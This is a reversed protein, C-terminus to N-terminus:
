RSLHISEGAGDEEQLARLVKEATLPLDAIRVGVADEIANAVAAAAPIIANEGIGRVNYPGVGEGPELLVTQFEPIDAVTPIKFDGFNSTEVHGNNVRLEEMLAYGLGQVAGGYVQGQHGIPNLITGVDHASTFKLLKVEGTEPDVSVEAVQAIFSTVPSRGTDDNVVDVRLPQGHRALVERWPLREGTDTRAVDAGEFALVEAPWELLEAALDLMRSKAEQAAQYASGTVIRTGHSGGLGSDFPTLDTDVVNIQIRDVPLGLEEAVVQRLSTYTGTGQEFVSTTVVVSGDAHLTIAVASEGGGPGRFGMALGRGVNAQRPSSYGAAEAAAQLTEKARVNSYKAGPGMSDGDEVLNRMRFDLPDMGLRRAVYDMHSEAVFFGQPEGPARAQGGPVNNTYVRAVELRANPIKYHDAGHIPGGLPVLPRLGGYAGSDFIAEAQHATITGDRKVGTKLWVSGAHRPAAATLEETYSMVMKV